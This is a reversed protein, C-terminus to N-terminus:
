RGAEEDLSYVKIFVDEGNEEALRKQEKEAREKDSWHSLRTQDSKRIIVYVCDM